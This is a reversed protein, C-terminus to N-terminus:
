LVQVTRGPESDHSSESEVSPFPFCFAFLRPYNTLLLLFSFLLFVVSVSVRVRASITVTVYFYFCTRKTSSMYLRLRQLSLVTDYKSRNMGPARHACATPLNRSYEWPSAVMRSSYRTARLFRMCQSGQKRTCAM